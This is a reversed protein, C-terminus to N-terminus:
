FYMNALCVAIVLPYEPTIGRQFNCKDQQCVGCDELTKLETCISKDYCNKRTMEGKKTQVTMRGCIMAGDCTKVDPKSCLPMQSADDCVFCELAFGNNVILLYGLLLSPYCM